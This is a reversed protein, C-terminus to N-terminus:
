QNLESDNLLTTLRTLVLGIRIITLHTGNYRRNIVLEFRIVVVGLRNIRLNNDANPFLRCGVM